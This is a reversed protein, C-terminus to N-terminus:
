PKRAPEKGASQNKLMRAIEADLSKRMRACKASLAPDRLQEAQRSVVKLAQDRAAFDRAARYAHVAHRLEALQRVKKLEVALSPQLPYRRRAEQLITEAEKLNGADLSTQASAILQNCEQVEIIWGFYANGPDYARVKATQAAASAADGKEMSRFMRIVLANREAPPTGAPASGGCGCLLAMGASFFLQLIITKKKMM